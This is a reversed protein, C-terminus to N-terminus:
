FIIFSTFSTANPVSVTDLSPSPSLAQGCLPQITRTQSSIIPYLSVMAEFLPL